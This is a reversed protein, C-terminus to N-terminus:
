QFILKITIRIATVALGIMGVVITIAACGIVVGIILNVLLQKLKEM